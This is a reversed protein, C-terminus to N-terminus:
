NDLNIVFSIIGKLIAKAMINRYKDTIIYSLDNENSMFGCEILLFPSKTEKLIYFKEPKVGRSRIKVKNSTFEKSIQTHVHGAFQKGMASNFNHFITFGNADSNEYADCHISIGLTFKKGVNDNFITHERTARTPLSVEDWEPALMDYTFGITDLLLGLKDEVASNFENERFTGDISRKGETLWGHGSDIIVHIKSLVNALKQYEIDAIKISIEYDNM